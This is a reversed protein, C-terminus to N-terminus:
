PVLIVIDLKPEHLIKSYRRLVEGPLQEFHPGHFVWPCRAEGLTEMVRDLDERFIVEPLNFNRIGPRLGSEAYLVGQHYSVINMIGDPADVKLLREVLRDTVGFYSFMRATGYVGRVIKAGGLLLAGCCCAMGLLAPLVFFGYGWSLRKRRIGRLVTDALLFVLFYGPYLVTLLNYLHSRGAYYLSLGLGLVGLFLVMRCAYTCGRGRRIRWAAFTLAGGYLIVGLWWLRGSVPMMFYGVQQFRVMYALYEWVPPWAGSGARLLVAVLPLGCVFAILFRWARRWAERVSGVAFINGALLAGAVAIGTDPNFFWAAAALVGGGWSRAKEGGKAWLFWAAAPGLLRVPFYAFYPDIRFNDETQFFAFWNLMYLFVIGYGAWLIRNRLMRKAAAFIMGFAALYLGGMMLSVSLMSCGSVRLLPALFQPYFGYLHREAVGYMSQMTSYLVINIHEDFNDDMRGPLYIRWVVIQIVAVALVLGWIWRDAGKRWRQCFLVGAGLLLVVAVVVPIGYHGWGFVPGFVAGGGNGDTFAAVGVMGLIWPSLRHGAFHSRGAAVGCFAAPLASLCLAIFAVSERPEPCCYHRLGPLIADLRRALVEPPMDPTLQYALAAVAIAIGSATLVATCFRDFADEGESGQHYSLTFLKVWNMRKVRM